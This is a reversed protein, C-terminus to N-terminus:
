YIKGKGEWGRLMGKKGGNNERRKVGKKIRKKRNRTFRRKRNGVERRIGKWGRKKEKGGEREGKENNKGDCEEEIREKTSGM